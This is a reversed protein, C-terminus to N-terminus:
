KNKGYEFIARMAEVGRDYFEGSETQGKMATYNSSRRMCLLTDDPLYSFFTKGFETELLRVSYQDFSGDPLTATLDRWTDTDLVELMSVWDDTRAYEAYLAPDVFWIVTDGAEFERCFKEFNGEQSPVTFTPDIAFEARIQEETMYFIRNFSVKVKGDGTLDRGIVSAAYMAGEELDSDYLRCPGAYTIYTDYEEASACQVLAVLCVTLALLGLLTHTKYHYWYNELKKKLREM